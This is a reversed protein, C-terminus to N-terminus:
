NVYKMIVNWIDEKELGLKWSAVGAVDSQDILKMKAEISEEEELWMKFTAGDSEYQGYYQATEEDWEPTVGHDKLLNQANTMSYAESSVTITGNADAAEKWLRTYFPIAIIVREKPVMTLTNDIANKVFNISSVSGSVESGAHHEDYAMIVVYDAVVGQEEKDFYATFDSPVYNDISLIIGNSRCKVSLERIFQIYHIGTELSINEFDINIGDLNYKISEAILENILKERRSTYSLLEYMNVDTSFDDILAWVEVGVSHVREVYTEDALSEISGENSSVKFWTPSIATVGKTKELLNLVNNNASNNTVQHWVLNVKQDKTIHTYEPATYDSKVTDYYSEVIFKNKVYGIVGDETMVKSFGGKVVESTDIYMLLQDKTLEVLIDSKISPEVRLETPKKVNTFLYDGWNYQIVIRNPDSYQVYRMDSYQKVFDIAVYVQDGKIKLIDYNVKNKSKNVYYENSGVEAKIVETPTTYTLINENTDLYFRKNFKENVTEYDLYVTGDELLAKKEYISDQMITLVENDEIKYYETLEMVENSPTFKKIIAAAVVIIIALLAITTGIVAQRTKRDM